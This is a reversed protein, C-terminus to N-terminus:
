LSQMPLALSSALSLAEVYRRWPFPGGVHEVRNARSM